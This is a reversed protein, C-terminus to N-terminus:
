PRARRPTSRWRQRPVELGAGLALLDRAVEVADLEPCVVEGIEGGDIQFVINAPGLDAATAHPV